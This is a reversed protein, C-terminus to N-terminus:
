KKIICKQFQRKDGCYPFRIARLDELGLIGILPFLNVLGATEATKTTWTFAVFDIIVTFNLNIVLSWNIGVVATAVGAASAHVVAKGTSASVGGLTVVAAM